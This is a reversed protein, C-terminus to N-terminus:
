SDGNLLLSTTSLALGAKVSPSGASTGFTGDPQVFYNSGVTLSSLGTVTGGQVIVSGAASASIASDAIGVFNTATLNTTTFAPRFAQFYQRHNSSVYANSFIGLYETDPDYSLGLESRSLSTASTTISTSATLTNGSCTIAWTGLYSASQFRYFFYTAKASPHYIIPRSRSYNGRSRVTEGGSSNIDAFDAKALATGITFSGSNLQIAMAQYANANASGSGGVYIGREANEDYVMSSYKQADSSLVVRTGSSLSGDSANVTIEHLYFKNSQNDDTYGAVIKNQSKDYYLDPYKVTDNFIQNSTGVSISTSGPSGSPKVAILRPRTTVDVMIMVIWESDEDYVARVPNGKTAYGGLGLSATTQVTASAGGSAITLAQVYNQESEAVFYMTYNTPPHFCTVMQNGTQDNSLVNTTSQLTFTSGSLTACLFQPYYNSANSASWFHVNVNTDYGAWLGYYTPSQEASYQAPTGASQSIATESVETVDGDSEIVVPKKSTIGSGSDTFTLQKAAAGAPLLDSLNSV